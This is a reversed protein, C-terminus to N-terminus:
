QQMLASVAKARKSILTPLLAQFAQEGGAGPAAAPARRPNPHMRPTAESFMTGRNGGAAPAPPPPGDINNGIDRALRDHVGELSDLRQTMRAMRDRDFPEGTDPDLKSAVTLDSRTDVIQS